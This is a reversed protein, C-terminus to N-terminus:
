CAGGKGRPWPEPEKEELMRYKPEEIDRFQGSRWGWLIFAIGIVVMLIMWGALLWLGLTM